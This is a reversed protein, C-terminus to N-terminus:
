KRSKTRHCLESDNSDQSNSIIVEKKCKILYSYFMFLKDLYFTSSMTHLIQERLERGMDPCFWIEM